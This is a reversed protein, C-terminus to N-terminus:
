LLSFKKTLKTQSKWKKKKTQRNKKKILFKKKIKLFSGSSLSRKTTMISLYKLKNYPSLIINNKSIEECNIRVMFVKM